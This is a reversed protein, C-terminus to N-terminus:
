ISNIQPQEYKVMTQHYDDNSYKIVPGLPQWGRKIANSVALIIDRRGSCILIDYNVIKPILM